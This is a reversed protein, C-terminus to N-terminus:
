MLQALVGLKRDVCQQIFAVLGRADALVADNSRGDGAAYLGASYAEPPCRALRARITDEDVSGLAHAIEVLQAEGALGNWSGSDLVDTSLPPISFLPGDGNEPHLQETLAFHMVEYAGDTHEATWVGHTDALEMILAEDPDYYAESEWDLNHLRYRGDADIGTLQLDVGM